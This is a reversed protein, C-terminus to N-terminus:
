GVMRVVPTRRGPPRGRAQHWGEVGRRWRPQDSPSRAWVVVRLWAAAGCDTPGHEPPSIRKMAANARSAMQINPLQEAHDAEIPDAVEGM